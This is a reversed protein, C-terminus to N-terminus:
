VTAIGAMRWKAFLSARPNRGDDARSNWRPQSAVVARATWPLALLCERFHLYIPRDNGDSCAVFAFLAECTVGSLDDGSPLILLAKQKM